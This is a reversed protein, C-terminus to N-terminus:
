TRVTTNLERNYKIASLNFVEILVYSVKILM